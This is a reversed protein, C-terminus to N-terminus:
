NKSTEVPENVITATPKEKQVNKEELKKQLNDIEERAEQLKKHLIQGQALADAHEEILNAIRLKLINYKNELLSEKMIEGM